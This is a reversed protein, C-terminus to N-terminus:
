AQGNPHGVAEGAAQPPLMQTIMLDFCSGLGRSCSEQFTVWNEVSRHAWDMYDDLSMLGLGPCQAYPGLHDRMMEIMQVSQAALTFLATGADTLEIAPDQPESRSHSM